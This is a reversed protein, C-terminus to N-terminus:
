ETSNFQSRIAPQPPTAAPGTARRARSRPARPRKGTARRAPSTPTRLATRLGPVSPAPAPAAALNASQPYQASGLAPGPFSSGASEANDCCRWTVHCATGGLGAREVIVVARHPQPTTSSSCNSAADTASPRRALPKTMSIAASALVNELANARAPTCRWHEHEGRGTNADPPAPRRGAGAPWSSRLSRGPAGYASRPRYLPDCRPRGVAPGAAPDRTSEAPM